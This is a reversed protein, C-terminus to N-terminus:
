EFKYAEFYAKRTADLSYGKELFLSLLVQKNLEPINKVNNLANLWPTVGDTLSCFQCLGAGIDVEEPINESLVCPLGAAQAELAAVGLGESVSPMVMVDFLSLLEYVDSRKGWFRVKKTLGLREVKKKIATKLEGDGILHLTSNPVERQFADFIDLFFLHNKIPYFRAVMVINYSNQILLEGKSQEVHPDTKHKIKEIGFANPIVKFSDGNKGGYLFEGAASSIALKSTAFRNALWKGTKFLLKTKFTENGTQQNRAHTVRAKIGALWAIFVAIGSYYSTHAHIADYKEGNKLLQYLQWLNRLLQGRPNVITHITGGSALVEDTFHCHENTMIVFNNILEKENQSRYLDMIRSEAGGLNLNAFLHIVRLPTSM